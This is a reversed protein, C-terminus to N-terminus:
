NELILSAEAGGKNINKCDGYLTFLGQNEFSVVSQKKVKIVSCEGSTTTEEEYDKLTTNQINIIKVGNLKSNVTIPSTTKSSLDLHQLYLVVSSSKVVINGEESEGQVLYSGSNQITVTTGSVVAGDGTTQIGDKSFTIYTMANFKFGYVTILLIVLLLTQIKM